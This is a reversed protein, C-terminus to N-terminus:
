EHLTPSWVKSNFLPDNRSKWLRWLTRISRYRVLLPISGSHFYNLLERFKDELSINPDLLTSVPLELLKWVAQAYPCLFFLHEPTEELNCCRSCFPDVNIQRQRLSSKISLARSLLRWLFHKLKPQIDLM